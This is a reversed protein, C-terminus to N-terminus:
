APKACVAATRTPYILAVHTVGNPLGSWPILATYFTHWAMALETTARPHKDLHRNTVSLTSNSLGLGIMLTCQEDLQFM